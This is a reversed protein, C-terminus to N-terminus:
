RVLFNVDGAVQAIALHLSGQKLEELGLVVELHPLSQELRPPSVQDSSPHSQRIGLWGGFAAM